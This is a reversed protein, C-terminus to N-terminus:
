NEKLHSNKYLHNEVCTAFSVWFGIGDGADQSYSSVFPEFYIYLLPWNSGGSKGPLPGFGACPGRKYTYRRQLTCNKKLRRPIKTHRKNVISVASGKACMQKELNIILLVACNVEGLYLSLWKNESVIVATFQNPSLHVNVTNMCFHLNIVSFVIM